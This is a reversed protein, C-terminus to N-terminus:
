APRRIAFYTPSSTWFSSQRYITPFLRVTSGVATLATGARRDLVIPVRERHRRDRAAAILCALLAV